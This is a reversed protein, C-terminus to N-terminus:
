STSTIKAVVNQSVNKRNRMKRGSAIIQPKARTSMKRRSSRLPTHFAIQTAQMMRTGNKPV